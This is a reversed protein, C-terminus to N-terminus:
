KPDQGTSELWQKQILKLNIKLDMIRDDCPLCSCFWKKFIGEVREISIDDKLILDVFDPVEPEYENMDIFGRVIGIPDSHALLENVRLVLKYHDRINCQTIDSTNNDMLQVM